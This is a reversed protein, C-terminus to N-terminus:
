LQFLLCVVRPRCTNDLLCLHHCMGAHGKEASVAALNLKPVAASCMGTATTARALGAYSPILRCHTKMLDPDSPKMTGQTHDPTGRAQEPRPQVGTYGLVNCVSKEQMNGPRKGLVNSMSHVSVCATFSQLQQTVSSCSSQAKHQSAMSRLQGDLCLHRLMFARSAYSLADSSCRQAHPKTLQCRLMKTYAIGVHHKCTGAALAPVFHLRPLLRPPLLTLMYSSHTQRASLLPLLVLFIPANIQQQHANAHCVLNLFAAWLAAHQVQSM